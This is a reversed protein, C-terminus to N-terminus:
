QVNNLISRDRKMYMGGDKEILDRYLNPPYKSFSLKKVVSPSALKKYGTQTLEPATRKVSQVWQSFQTGRVAVVDFNMHAYGKGSFNAGHGYYTGTKDAQLWLRMAMGPMAYEQGGLQPVWFSNMPADATLVFQVARNAPIKCYNVTAINQEPYQFLWKWDLSTVEVTLPRVVPQPPKTLLFTDRATYTGLIGVIVIPIGWWIIELVKSESWEPQYPASNGPVDRFRRVIYWLLLIVPIVVLCVLVISLIMLRLEIRAVPGAPQFMLVRRGCGSAGFCVTCLGVFLGLRSGINAIRLNRLWNRLM